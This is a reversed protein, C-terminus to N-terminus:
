ILVSPHMCVMMSGPCRRQSPDKFTLPTELIGLALSLRLLTQNSQFLGPHCAAHVSREVYAINAESIETPGGEMDPVVVASEDTSEPM